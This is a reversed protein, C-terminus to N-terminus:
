QNPPQAAIHAFTQQLGAYRSQLDGYIERSVDFRNWHEIVYACASALRQAVPIFENVEYYKLRFELLGAFCSVRDSDNAAAESQIYRIAAEVYFRFAVPGMWMLDEQYYLSNQRFLAEAEDLNKGLFHDCASQEDLSNYVNIDNHTPIPM